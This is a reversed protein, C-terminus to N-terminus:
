RKKKDRIFFETRLKHKLLFCTFNSKIQTSFSACINCPILFKANEYFQFKSPIVKICNKHPVNTEYYDFLGSM